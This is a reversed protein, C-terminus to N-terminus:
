PRMARSNSSSLSFTWSGRRGSTPMPRPVGATSKVPLDPLVDVIEGPTMAFVGPVPSTTIAVTTNGIRRFTKQAMPQILAQAQEYIRRREVGLKELTRAVPESPDLGHEALVKLTTKSLAKRSAQSLRLGSVGPMVPQFDPRGMLAVRAGRGFDLGPKEALVQESELFPLAAAAAALGGTGDAGPKPGKSAVGSVASGSALVTAKLSALRVAQETEFLKFPRFKAPPLAGKIAAQPVSAYGAPQIGRLEGISATLRDHIAALDMLQKVVDRDPRPAAPAQRTPLVAAPIRLARRQARTLEGADAPFAPDNVFQRVLQYARLVGALRRLPRNHNAPSLKIALISDIVNLIATQLPQSSVFASPTTGLVASLLASLDSRTTKSGEILADVGASVRDLRELDANAAVSAVFKNSAVFQEALTRLQDRRKAGAPITAAAQQFQTQAGLEIPDVEDPSRRADRVVNFRFLTEM